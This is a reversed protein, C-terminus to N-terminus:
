DRPDVIMIQKPDGTFHLEHINLDPFQEYVQRTTLDHGLLDGKDNVVSYLPGDSNSYIWVHLGRGSLSGILSRGHDDTTPAVPLGNVPALALGPIMGQPVIATHRGTDASSSHPRNFTSFAFFCSAGVFLVLLRKMAPTASRMPSCAQKVPQAAPTQPSPAHM